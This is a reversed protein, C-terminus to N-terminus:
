CPGAQHTSLYALAQRSIRRPSSMTFTTLAFRPGELAGTRNEARNWLTSPADLKSRLSMRLSTRSGPAADKPRDVAAQPHM